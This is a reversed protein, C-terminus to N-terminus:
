QLQRQLRLQSNKLHKIHSVFVAAEPNEQLCFLVSLDLLNAYVCHQLALSSVRINQFALVKGEYDKGMAAIRPDNSLLSDISSAVAEGLGVPSEATHLRPSRAHLHLLSEADLSSVHNSVSPVDNVPEGIHSDQQGDAAQRDKLLQLLYCLDFSSLLELGM